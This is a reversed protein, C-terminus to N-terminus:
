EEQRCFYSFTWGKSRTVLYLADFWVLRGGDDDMSHSFLRVRFGFRCPHASRTCPFLEGSPGIGCTTQCPGVVRGFATRLSDEGMYLLLEACAIHQAVKALLM